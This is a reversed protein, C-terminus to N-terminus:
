QIVAGHSLINRDAACSAVFLHLSKGSSIATLAAATLEKFNQNTRQIHFFKSGCSGTVDLEVVVDSPDAYVAIPKGHAVTLAAYVTVSVSALAIFFLTLLTIRRM